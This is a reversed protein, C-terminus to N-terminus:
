MLKNLEVIKKQGKIFVYASLVCSTIDIPNGGVILLIPEPCRYPKSFSIEALQNIDTLSPNTKAFPHFHWEGLYYHNKTSWLRELWSQLGSIGRQFWFKGNRSDPPPSSIGTVIAFNHSDTYYGVIIGGTENPITNLCLGLLREIYTSELKLGYHKDNSQFEITKNMKMERQISM